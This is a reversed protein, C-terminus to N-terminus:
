SIWSPVSRGASPQASSVGLFSTHPVWPVTDGPWTFSAVYSTFIASSAAVPSSPTAVVSASPFLPPESLASVTMVTASSPTASSTVASSCTSPAGPSTTSTFVTASCTPVSSRTPPMTSKSTGAPASTTPMTPCSNTSPVSRGASPQASTVGCRTSHWVSAVSAAPSLLLAVNSTFIASSAVAPSSPTAVVSASPSLPPESLASVTRVTAPVSSGVWSGVDSGVVSGVASGVASGVDSGVSSGVASGVASGVDSGVSSVPAAPVSDPSSSRGSVPEDLM